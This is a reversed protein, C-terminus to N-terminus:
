FGKFIIPIEKIAALQIGLVKNWATKKEIINLDTIIFLRRLVEFLACVRLMSLNIKISEIRDLICNAFERVDYEIKLNTNESKKSAAIYERSLKYIAFAVAVAPYGVQISEVDLFYYTDNHSNLIDHPHLDIHCPATQLSAITHIYQNIERYSSSIVEINNRLNSTESKPFYDELHTSAKHLRTFSDHFSDFCNIMISDPLNSKKYDTLLNFLSGIKKGLSKFNINDGGVYVGDIHEMLIWYSSDHTVITKNNKSLVFRPFITKAENIRQSVEIQTKFFNPYSNSRFHKLLYNSKGTIIKYNNSNIELAGIRLVSQLNPDCIYHRTILDRIGEIEKSNVEVYSPTKKSFLDPQFLEKM